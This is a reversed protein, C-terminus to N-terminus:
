RKQNVHVRVHGNEAKEKTAAPPWAADKRDFRQELGLSLFSAFTSSPVCM